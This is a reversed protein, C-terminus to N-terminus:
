TLRQVRDAINKYVMQFMEVNIEPFKDSHKQRLEPITEWKLKYVHAKLVGM